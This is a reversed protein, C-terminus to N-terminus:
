INCNNQGNNINNEICNIQFEIGLISISTLYFMIEYLCAVMNILIIITARLRMKANQEIHNIKNASCKKKDKKQEPCVTHVTHVGFFDLYLMGVCMCQRLDSLAQAAGCACMARSFLSIFGSERKRDRAYFHSVFMHFCVFKISDFSFFICSLLLLLFLLIFVSLPNLSHAAATHTRLVKSHLRLCCVVWVISGCQTCHQATTYAAVCFLQATYIQFTRCLARFLLIPRVVFQRHITIDRAAFM